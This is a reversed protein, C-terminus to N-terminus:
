IVMTRIRRAKAEIRCHDMKWSSTLFQLLLDVHMWRRPIRNRSAHNAPQTSRKVAELVSRPGPKLVEGRNDTISAKLWTIVVRDEKDVSIRTAM